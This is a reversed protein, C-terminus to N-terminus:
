PRSAACSGSSRINPERWGRLGLQFPFIHGTVVAIITLIVEWSRLGSYLALWGAHHGMVEIVMIATWGVLQLINIVSILYSGQKGFSIRTSMIAPVKERFGILGALVLLLALSTFVPYNCTCNGTWTPVNLVGCAPVMNNRCGSRLGSINITGSESRKGAFKICGRAIDIITATRISGELHCHIETKPINNYKSDFNKM